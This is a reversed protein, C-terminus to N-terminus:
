KAVEQDGKVLNNAVLSGAIPNKQKEYEQNATIGYQPSYRQM